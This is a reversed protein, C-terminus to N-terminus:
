SGAARVGGAVVLTDTGDDQRVILFGSRDLGATVGEIVGGAQRVTVRRGAAYSSAHTFLRLITEQDETVFSDVALLLAILIATPCSERGTGIRVSTAEAALDDPFRTHNVNIGIGAIAKGDALQVLIGAVKKGGLMVDNPWRLDCALGTAQALAEAIALGLALTLVPAPELVISCYIGARPESHWSHGHRGQGATQEDAVVVTGIECGAAANMTSDVTPYYLIPRGPFERRVRGIDLKM